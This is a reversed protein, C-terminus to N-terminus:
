STNFGYKKCRQWMFLPVNQFTREGHRHMGIHRRSEQPNIIIDGRNEPVPTKRTYAGDRGTTACQVRVPFRRLVSSYIDVNLGGAKRWLLAHCLTVRACTM